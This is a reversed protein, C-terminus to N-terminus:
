DSVRGRNIGKLRTGAKIVDTGRKRVAALEQEHEKWYPNIDKATWPERKVSSDRVANMLPAWLEATQAWQLKSVGRAMVM